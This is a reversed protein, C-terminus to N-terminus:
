IVISLKALVDKDKESFEKSCFLCKIIVDQYFKNECDKFHALLKVMKVPRVGGSTHTNKVGKMRKFDVSVIASEDMSRPLHTRKITDMIDSPELPVLVTRDDMKETQSKPVKRIKMFPINISILQNELTTIDALEPPLKEVTLGNKISSPPIKKKKM